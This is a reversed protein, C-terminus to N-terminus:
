LLTHLLARARRDNHYRHMLSALERVEVESRTLSAYKQLDSFQSDDLEDTKSWITRLVQVPVEDFTKGHPHKSLSLELLFIISQPTSQNFHTAAWIWCFQNPPAKDEKEGYAKDLEQDLKGAVTIERLIQLSTR